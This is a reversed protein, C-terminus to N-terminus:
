KKKLNMEDWRRSSDNLTSQLFVSVRQEALLYLGICGLSIYGFLALIYICCKVM